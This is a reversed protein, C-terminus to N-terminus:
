EGHAHRDHQVMAARASAQRAALQFIGMAGHKKAQHSSLRHNPADADIRDQQQEATREVARLHEVDGADQAAHLSAMLAHYAVEYHGADFAESNIRMLQAFWANAQEAGTM